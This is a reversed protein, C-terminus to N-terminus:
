YRFKNLFPDFTIISNFLLSLDQNKFKSGYNKIPQRQLSFNLKLYNNLINRNKIVWINSKRKTQDFQFYAKIGTDLVKFDFNKNDEDLYAKFKKVLYKEKWRTKKSDM